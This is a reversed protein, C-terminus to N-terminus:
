RAPRRGNPLRAARAPAAIPQGALERQLADFLVDLGFAFVGDLREVRLHPAVARVHPFQVSDPARELQLPTAHPTLERSAVDAMGAGNAFGGLLRFWLAAREASLGAEAFAALIREYLAFSRASNFRRTSLLLYARPHRLAIGRYDSVYRRLKQLPTARPPDPLDIEEVLRDMVADLLQGKNPYHHYLAMAEVGLAEGLRRMSLAELGQADIMALAAEAIAERTLTERRAPMPVSKRTAM